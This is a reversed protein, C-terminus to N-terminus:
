TGRDLTYGLGRVARLRGPGRAPLGLKRRLSSIYSKLAGAREEEYSGWTSEVLRAYPVVLGANSVLALLLRFERKTLRVPPRQDYQATREQPDLVLGAAHHGTTAQQARRLVARIREVLQPPSFPKTVYDDAGAQLGRIVDEETRRATLMIVPTTSTHRIRQCVEFGDLTPLDAELLVLHPQEARWYALAEAGDGVVAVRYGQRELLYALAERAAADNDVLLVTVPM